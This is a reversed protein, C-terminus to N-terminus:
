IVFSCFAVSLRVGAYGSSPGTFPSATLIPCPLNEGLSDIFIRTDCTRAAPLKL